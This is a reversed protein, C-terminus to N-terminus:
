NVPFCDLFRKASQISSRIEQLYNSPQTMGTLKSNWALPFGITEVIMNHPLALLRLAELQHYPVYIQSTILLIKSGIPVNFKSIFFNFTDGSNARREGPKSSPAAISIIKVKNNEAEYTRIAWNRNINLSDNYRTEHYTSSIGFTQEVGANLLDYESSAGPAYTDTAERESDSVPRMAGLLGVLRTSIIKNKLLEHAFRPRLLCSLRAGGLVLVYDYDELSPNEVGILGLAHAAEMARNKQLENMDGDHILWRASEKIDKAQATKQLRRFDWIDSFQVLWDVWQSLNLNQPARGNFIEILAMLPHSRVWNKISAHIIGVRDSQLDPCEIRILKSM